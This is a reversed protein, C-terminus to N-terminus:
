DERKVKSLSSPLRGRKDLWNMDPYVVEFNCIGMADLVEVTDLRHYQEILIGNKYLGEWNDGRVLTFTPQNNTHSLTGSRFTDTTTKSGM